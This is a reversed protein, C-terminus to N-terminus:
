MLTNMQDYMSFMPQLMAILLTGIILSLVIVIIPDMAATLSATTVEM